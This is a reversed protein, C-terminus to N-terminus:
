ARTPKPQSETQKAYVSVPVYTREGYEDLHADLAEKLERVTM